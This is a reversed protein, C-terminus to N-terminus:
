FSNLMSSNASVTSSAKALTRLSRCYGPGPPVPFIQYGRFLEFHPTHPSPESIHSFELFVGEAASDKSTQPVHPLVSTMGQCFMGFFGLPGGRM